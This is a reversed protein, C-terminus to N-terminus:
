ESGVILGNYIANGINYGGCDGTIDLLEGVIFLGPVIKSEMTNTDIEFLPIGGSCVQAFNFDNTGVIKLDFLHLKNYLLQKKDFSLNDWNDNPKINCIKLILNSLKYNILGDFLMSITRNKLIKNRDDFFTLFDNLSEINLIPLFDILLKVKKRDNLAKAAFYSLNLICIGSVGYDTLQIEGEESTIFKDDQYLQVKVSTRIGNWEKLYNQEAKLQVLSPLVKIISHGLKKAIDYGSGDSGTKPYSKSGTALVVKEFIYEKKNTIITFLKDKKIDIVTTNMIFKIPLNKAENELCTKISIAQNSFPYYYGDKIISTVGISKLFGLVKKPDPKLKKLIETDMSHYHEIRQDDNWFNCRGSGTILLKKLPSSNKEIVTVDHKRRALSIASVMGSIGAGIVVVKM